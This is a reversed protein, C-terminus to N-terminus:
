SQQQQYRPDIYKLCNKGTIKCTGSDKMNYCWNAFEVQNNVIGTNPMTYFNRDSIYKGWLDTLDTYVMSRFKQRIENKVDDYNCAPLRITDSLNKYKDNKSRLDLTSTTNLSEGLTYNMFPNNITPKSCGLNQTPSLDKLPNPDLVIPFSGLNQKSDIGSVFSSKLDQPLDKLSDKEKDFLLSKFNIYFESSYNLILSKYQIIYYSCILLVLFFFLWKKKLVLILIIFIIYLIYRFINM